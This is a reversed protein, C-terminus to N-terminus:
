QPPYIEMVFPTSGMMDAYLYTGPQRGNMNFYDSDSEFGLGTMTGTVPCDVTGTINMSVDFVNHTGEQTFTGSIDCGVNNSGTFSMSQGSGSPTFAMAYGYAYAFWGATTGSFATVSGTLPSYSSLTFSGGSNKGTISTASNVTGQMSVTDVTGGGPLQTGLAAYMSTNGSFSSAGTITPLEWTDGVYDIDQMDPVVDGFLLAQGQSNIVGVFPVSEGGSIVNTQWNGVVDYPGGGNGGGSSSSSGGCNILMACMFVLATFSLSLVLKRMTRIEGKDTGLAYWAKQCIGIKNCGGM